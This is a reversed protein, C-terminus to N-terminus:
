VPFSSAQFTQEGDVHSTRPPARWQRHSRGTQAKEGRGPGSDASYVFVVGLSAGHTKALAVAHFYAQHSYPSFDIPYLIQRVRIM